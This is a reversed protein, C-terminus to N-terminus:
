VAKLGLAARDASNSPHDCLNMWVFQKCNLLHKDHAEWTLGKIKASLLCLCMSGQSNSAMRTQMTLKLGTLVVCLSGTEFHPIVCLKFLSDSDSPLVTLIILGPILFSGLQLNYALSKVIYIYYIYFYIVLIHLSISYKCVCIYACVCAFVCACVCLIWSEFCLVIPCDGLTITHEQLGLVKSSAPFLSSWSNLAPM